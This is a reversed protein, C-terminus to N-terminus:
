EKALAEILEVAYHLLAMPRTGQPINENCIIYINQIMQSFTNFSLKNSETM